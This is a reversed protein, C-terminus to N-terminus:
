IDEEEDDLDDDTDLVFDEDTVDEDIDEDVEVDIEEVFDDENLENEDGLILDDEDDDDEDEDPLNHGNVYTISSDHTNPQDVFVDPTEENTESREFDDDLEPDFPYNIIEQVMFKYKTYHKYFIYAM